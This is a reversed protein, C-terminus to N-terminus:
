QLNINIIVEDKVPPLCIQSNCSQWTIKAKIEYIYWNPKMSYRMRVPCDVDAKVQEPQQVTYHVVDDNDAQALTESIWCLAFVLSTVIIKNLNRSKM